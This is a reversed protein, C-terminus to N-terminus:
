EVNIHYTFMLPPTNDTSYWITPQVWPEIYPVYPVYTNKYNACTDKYQCCDCKCKYCPPVTVTKTGYYTDSTTGSTTNSDNM